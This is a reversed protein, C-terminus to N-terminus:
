LKQEDGKSLKTKRKQELITFIKMKNLTFFYNRGNFICHLCGLLVTLGLFVYCVYGTKRTLWLSIGLGAAALPLAVDVIKAPTNSFFSFAGCHKKQMKKYHIRMDRFFRRRCQDLAIQAGIGLVLMVWFAIGSYRTEEELPMALFSASMLTFELISLVLFTKEWRNGAM